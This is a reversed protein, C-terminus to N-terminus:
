SAFISQLYSVLRIQDVHSKIKLESCFPLFSPTGVLVYLGYLLEGDWGQKKAQEAVKGMGKEQLWGVVRESDWGKAEAAFIDERNGEKTLLRLAKRFKLYEGEKDLGLREWVRDFEQGALKSWELLCSGDIGHYVFASSLTDLQNMKLWSCTEELSWKRVKELQLQEKKLPDGASPLKVGSYDRLLSRQSGVSPLSANSAQISIPSPSSSTDPLPKSPSSAPSTPSSASPAPPSGGFAKGVAALISAAATPFSSSDSWPNYWLKNGLMAGLWGKPTFNDEAMVFIVEKKLRYAYEAETRCAQSEKYHSSLGIIMVKAEEVAESMKELISGEMQEIDLWIKFGKEKLFFALQRMREKQSWSYSIM